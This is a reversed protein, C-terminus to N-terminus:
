VSVKWADAEPSNLMKDEFSSSLQPSVMKIGELAFSRLKLYSPELFLKSHQQIYQTSREEKDLSDEKFLKINKTGRGKSYFSSEVKMKQIWTNSPVIGFMPLLVKPIVGPLSEYNILLGRQIIQGNKDYRTKYKDYADLAFTNLMNLHAACWAERPAAYYNGLLEKLQNRVQM